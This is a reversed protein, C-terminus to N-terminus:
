AAGSGDSEVRPSRSGAQRALAESIEAAAEKLQTRVRPEDRAAGRRKVFPITLAAVAGESRGDFVPCGLDVIGEVFSSPARRLGARRIRALDRELAVRDFSSRRAAAALWRERRPAPQYALLIRGSTSEVLNRRHGVRVAFGVEDPSEVRAIVVMEDRSAVALHCSQSTQEALREMVPLATDLLRGVPPNRMALEFLRTTLGFGEEGELRAIYGREELVLLMRFLESRSRGLAESIASVPLPGAQEALLELIDLGKELAPASYRTPAPM